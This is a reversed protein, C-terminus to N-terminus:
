RYFFQKNVYSYNLYNDVDEYENQNRFLLLNDDNESLDEVITSEFNSLDIDSNIKPIFSPKLEKNLVENWNIKSFLKHSRIGDANIRKNPDIILLKHILDIINDLLLTTNSNRRNDKIDFKINKIDLVNKDFNNAVQSKDIQFPVVGILMEYLLIGFSWWDVSKNYVEGALIEPAIYHITGVMSDARVSMSDNDYGEHDYGKNNEDNNNSVYSNLKALGFDIIKIHGQKDIMVNELKLDRYIIKKKHLHEIALFIEAAYILILSERFTKQKKLHFYLEGGQIFETVLFLKENDQYAYYLSLIFPHNIKELILRENMINQKYNHKKIFNKSIVKMAFYPMLYVLESDLKTEKDEKIKIVKVLYTIGFSGRGIIKLKEFEISHKKININKTQENFNNNQGNIMIKISVLSSGSSNTYSKDEKTKSIENQRNINIKHNHKENHSHALNESLDNNIPNSNKNYNRKKNCCCISKCFNNM